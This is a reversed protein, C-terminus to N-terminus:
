SWGLEQGLLRYLRENSGAFYDSLRRRLGPALGTYTGPNLKPYRELPRVPLSLFELTRLHTQRPETFLEESSLVLVRDKSHYAFIRELQAAYNGRSLYSYHQHNFSRYSPDALIKEEEGQLRDEEREIAEEFTYPEHGRTREHNYHSYARDVPNRLLVILKIAPLCEAIRQPALPHYMYYPSSEGTIRLGLVGKRRSPRYKVPFHGRYWDMGRQFSVDFFHVEPIPLARGVLPDAAVYEYLSNTGCRQGGVIIFSPLMRLASTMAGMEEVATGVAGKLSRPTLSKLSSYSRHGVRALADASQNRVSFRTWM